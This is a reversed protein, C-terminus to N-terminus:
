GVECGVGVKTGVITGTEPATSAFWTVGVAMGVEEKAAGDVSAGTRPLGGRESVSMRSPNHQTKKIRIPITMSPNTTRLWFM